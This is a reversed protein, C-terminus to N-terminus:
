ISNRVNDTQQNVVKPNIKIEVLLYRFRNYGYVDLNSFENWHLAYSGRLSLPESRGATTGSGARQSWKLESALVRGEHLRFAEDVPNNRLSPKWFASDNTLMLAYGTFQPFAQVIKELRMIDKCFDYRTIDQAAQDELQYYEGAIDVSLGRTHYKLELVLSLDKSWIDVYMREDPFPKYELRISAQPFMKHIQWALAHQFDSESHFLQRELALDTLAREVIM